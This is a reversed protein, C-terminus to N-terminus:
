LLVPAHLRSEITTSGRLGGKRNARMPQSIRVYVYKADHVVASQPLAARVRAIQLVAAETCSLTKNTLYKNQETAQVSTIAAFSTTVGNGSGPDSLLATSM